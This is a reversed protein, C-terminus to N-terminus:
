VVYMGDASEEDDKEITDFDLIRRPREGEPVRTSTDIISPAPRSASEVIGKTAGMTDAHGVALLNSKQLAVFLMNMAHLSHDSGTKQWTYTEKGQWEIPIRTANTMEKAFGGGESAHIDRFNQPIIISMGTQFAMQVYDLTLLRDLKLIREVMNETVAVQSLPSTNYESRWGVIGHKAANECVRKSLTKEPMADICFFRTNYQRFLFLVQQEDKVKGIFVPRTVKMGGVKPGGEVVQAIIVDWSNYRVDVGAACPANVLKPPVGMCGRPIDLKQAM